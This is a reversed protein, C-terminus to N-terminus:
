ERVRWWVRARGDRSVALVWDHDGVRMLGVLYEDLFGLIEDRNARIEPRLEEILEPRAEVRLRGESAYVSAGEVILRGLVRNLSM